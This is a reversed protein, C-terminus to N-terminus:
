LAEDDAYPYSPMQYVGETEKEMSEYSTYYAPVSGGLGAVYLGTGLEYIDKHLNISKASKDAKEDEKFLSQADTLGPVFIVKGKDADKKLLKELKDMTAEHDEKSQKEAEAIM